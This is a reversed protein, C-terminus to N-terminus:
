FSVGLRTIAAAKHEPLLFPVLDSPVQCLSPQFGPFAATVCYLNVHCYVSSVEPSVHQRGDKFYKRHLRTTVVLDNPAQPVLGEPKLSQACGYCRTVRSDLFSLLAFAFIGTPPKPRQPHYVQMNEPADHGQGPFSPLTCATTQGFPYNYAFPSNEANGLNISPQMQIHIPHSQWAPSHDPVVHSAPVNAVANNSPQLVRSCVTPRGETSPKNSAGKRRRTGGKQGSNNPMNLNSIASLRPLRKRGKFWHLFEKLSDATEAAALTHSCMSYTAWNVCDKDCQAKGTKVNVEVQRPYRSTKSHVMFRLAVENSEDPIRWVASKDKVMTAAKEFMGQLVPLPIEIIQAREPPISLSCETTRNKEEHSTLDGRADSMSASFFKKKLANKQPDSMRFFDKEEVGLHSFEDTLKYEGRDIVALFQEQHQRRIETRIREIAPPLGTAKKGYKSDDEAKVLRNMCESANQTYVKPPFGLGCMSRIDATCCNRIVDAKEKLFYGCFKAGNEHLSKWNKMADELAADFEETSKCDVLGGEAVNGMGKGFIDFFIESAAIGGIDLDNLKRKVNDKLHIDCRLHKANVFVEAMANYLNEEGDTGFVLVDTTERRYKTMLLPLTKYSTLLKQKHLIGPGICVPHHGKETTLMLNRYTTFTYYYDAIQFTCDVGLICFKEPNTCFREIDILQQETALFIIPEPFLPIERILMDEKRGQQEEKAKALIQLLPDGTAIPSDVKQRKVVRNLNYVQARNRPFDGSSEVKM